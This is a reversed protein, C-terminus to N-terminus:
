ENSVETNQRKRVTEKIIPFDEKRPPKLKLIKISGKKESISQKPHERVQSEDSRAETSIRSDEQDQVSRVVASRKQKADGNGLTNRAAEQRENNKVM